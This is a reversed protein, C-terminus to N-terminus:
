EDLWSRRFDYTMADRYAGAIVANFRESLNSAQDLFAQHSTGGWMHLDCFAGAEHMAMAFKYTSDRSPDFEAVCPFWVPPFGKLDEATARNPVAEPGLRPDAYLDGLWMRYCFNELEADWALKKEPGDFVNRQSNNDARDDMVPVHLVLGRPKPAGLWGYRKMRFALSICSQCTNSNGTWVVRDLDIHLEEAHSVIWAYAAHSDNVSDPYQCFPTGRGEVFSVQVFRDFSRLLTPRLLMMALEASAPGMPLLGGNLHFFTPLTEGERVDAPVCAVVHVPDADPDEPCGPADGEIWAVNDFPVNGSHVMAVVGSNMQDAMAFLEEKSMAASAYMDGMEITYWGAEYSEPHAWKPDSRQIKEHQM